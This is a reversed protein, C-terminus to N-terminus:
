SKDIAQGAWQGDSTIAVPAGTVMFSTNISIYMVPRKNTNTRQRLNTLVTNDSVRAKTRLNLGIAVAM